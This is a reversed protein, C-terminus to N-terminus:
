QKKAELTRIFHLLAWRDEESVTPAMPPHRQFGLSIKKFLVGDAQTQVYSGKLNAPLPSFSQGVTGQGDYKKGHCVICFYGYATEGKEIIEATQPLPNKLAEAKASRLFLLGGDVPVTGAPMDPLPAKYTRLSEQDKMRGYDCGGLSFLLFGLGAVFFFKMRFLCYM